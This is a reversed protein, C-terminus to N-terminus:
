CFLLCEFQGLQLNGLFTCRIEYHRGDDFGLVQKWEHQFTLGLTSCTTYTLFKPIM